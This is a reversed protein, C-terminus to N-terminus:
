KDGHDNFIIQSGQMDIDIPVYLYDSLAKKLREQCEPPVFFLMFGGSGAGLLKGGLAGNAMAASYIRDLGETTVKSSLRKKISWAHNLMQGIYSIDKESRLYIEADKAMDALEKLMSLNQGIKKKQEVAVESSIRSIGTFCLFLHSLFEKQRKEPLDLPIVRFPQDPYFEIVNFGGYASCIQDQSGVTEGIVEQELYIAQEALLRKEASKQQM